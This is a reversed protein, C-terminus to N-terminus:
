YLCQLGVVGDRWKQCGSVVEGRYGVPAARRYGAPVPGGMGFAGAVEPENLMISLAQRKFGFAYITRANLRRNCSTDWQGMGGSIGFGTVAVGATVGPGYCTEIAASGLGPAIANPTTAQASGSQRIRSSGGGNITVSSSGSGALPL